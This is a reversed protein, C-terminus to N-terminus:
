NEPYRLPLPHDLCGPVPVVVVQFYQLWKVPALWPPTHGPHGAVLIALVVPPAWVLPVWPALLYDPDGPLLYILYFTQFDSCLLIVSLTFCAVMEKTTVHVSTTMYSPVM